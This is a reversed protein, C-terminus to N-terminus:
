ESSGSLQSFSTRYSPFYLLFCVSVPLLPPPASRAPRIGMHATNKILLPMMETSAMRSSCPTGAGCCVGLGPNWLQYSIDRCSHATFVLPSQPQTILLNSSVWTNWKFPWCMFKSLSGASPPKAPGLCMCPTVPNDPM